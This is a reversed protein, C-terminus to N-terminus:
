WAAQADRDAFRDLVGQNQIAVTLDLTEGPDPKGNGNGGALTSSSLALYSGAIRTAYIQPYLTEANLGMIESELPWFDSGGVEICLSLVDHVAYAWDTTTGSCDYLIEGPQGVQYGNTTAMENAITRFLADDLTHVTSDYSWPLLVMGAVSHFTIGTVFDRAAVFNMYAQTEPESRAATGRYTESCPDSSSGVGGWMYPYNRNVDVGYCGGANLRRNKRWMGGGTPNTTENYCYGDPNVIPVFFIERNDVLFTAGSDSGYNQCLWTMYYLQTEVSMPERAHHMGDFLVEPESENVDPNDSIKFAWISRGEGTTGISFKATTISPYSTHLADLFDSTESYTHFQGFNPGRIRSAYHAEMDEIEVTVDYGLARMQSLQEPSTVITVAVGPKSKMIDLDQLKLFGRWEDMSSFQVRAQIYPSQESAWAASAAGLVALALVLVCTRGVREGRM